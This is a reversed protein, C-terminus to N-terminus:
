VAARAIVRGDGIHWSADVRDDTKTFQDNAILHRSAVSRRMFLAGPPPWDAAVKM